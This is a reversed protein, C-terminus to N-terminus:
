TRHAALWQQNLEVLDRAKGLIYSSSSVLETLEGIDWDYARAGNQLLDGMRSHPLSANPSDGRLTYLYTSLYDAILKSRDDHLYQRSERLLDIASAWNDPFNTLIFARALELRPESLEPKAMMVRNCALAASRYVEPDQLMPARRTQRLEKAHGSAKSAGQRRRRALILVVLLGPLWVLLFIGLANVIDWLMSSAASIRVPVNAAGAWKGTSFAGASIILTLAVTKFLCKM